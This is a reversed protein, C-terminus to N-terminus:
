VRMAGYLDAIAAGWDDTQTAKAALVKPDFTGPLKGEAKLRNVEGWFGTPTSEVDLTMPPRQREEQPETPRQAATTPIAPEVPRQTSSRPTTPVPSPTAPHARRSRTKSLGTVTGNSDTVPTLGEASEIFDVDRYPNGKANTKDSDHWVAFFRVPHLDGVPVEQPDIGVGLLDATDFLKASEYRHGRFYLKVHGELKGQANKELPTVEIASVLSRTQGPKLPRLGAGAGGGVGLRVTLADFDTLLADLDEGEFEFAVPLGKINTQVTLKM